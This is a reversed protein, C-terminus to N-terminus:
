SEHNPRTKRQKAKPKKSPVSDREKPNHLLYMFLAGKNKVGTRTAVSAALQRLEEANGDKVLKIYLAKHARDELIDAIELGDLQYKRYVRSENGRKKLEDFYTNGTIM